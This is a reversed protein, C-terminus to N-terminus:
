YEAFELMEKLKNGNWLLTNTAQAIERAGKTYDSNTIVWAYDATYYNKGAVAEQIATNSVNSSYRKTQIAYKKDNKLAILDVGQDGSGKTQTVTFGLKQLVNGVFLEFDIGNLLDFNIQSLQLSKEEETIVKANRELREIKLIKKQEELHKDIEDYTIEVGFKKAAYQFTFNSISAEIGDNMLFLRAMKEANQDEPQLAHLFPYKYLDEQYEAELHYSFFLHVFSKLNEYVPYEKSELFDFFFKISPFAIEADGPGSVYYDNQKRNEYKRINFHDEYLLEILREMMGSIRFSSINYDKIFSQYYHHLQEDVTELTYLPNIKKSIPPAKAQAQLVIEVEEEFEQFEDRKVNLLLIREELSEIKAEMVEIEKKLEKKSKTLEIQERISRQNVAKRDEVLREFTDIDKQVKKLIKQNKEVEEKIKELGKQNKEFDRKAIIVETYKKFM